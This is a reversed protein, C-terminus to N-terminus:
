NFKNKRGNAGVVLLIWKERGEWTAFKVVMGKAIFGFEQNM